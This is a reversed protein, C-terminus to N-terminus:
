LFAQLEKLSLKQHFNSKTRSEDFTNKNGFTYKKFEPMMDVQMFQSMEKIFADISIPSFKRQDVMYRMFPKPGGKEKLKSDLYGMFRAGFTYAAPDTTRTYYPRSSMQGTGSLTPSTTHGDDRWSAVRPHLPVVEPRSTLSNPAM